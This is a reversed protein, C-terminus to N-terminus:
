NRAGGVPPTYAFKSDDVPANLKWHPFEIREPKQSGPSGVFVTYDPLGTQPLLVLFESNAHGDQQRLSKEYLPQEPLMASFKAFAATGYFETLASFAPIDSAIDGIRAPAASRTCHNVAALYETQTKGDSAYVMKVARTTFDVEEVYAKNPQELTAYIIEVPKSNKYLTATFQITQAAGLVEPPTLPKTQAFAPLASLLLAAAALIAKTM